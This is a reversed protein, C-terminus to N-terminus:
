WDEDVVERQSKKVVWSVLFYDTMKEFVWMLICELKELSILTLLENSLDERILVTVHVKSRVLLFM